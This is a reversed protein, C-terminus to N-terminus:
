VFWAANPYEPIVFINEDDYYMYVWDGVQAGRYVRYVTEIKCYTDTDEYYLIFLCQTLGIDEDLEMIKDVLLYTIGDKTNHRVSMMCVCVMYCTLWITGLVTQIKDGTAYAILFAVCCAASLYLLSVIDHYLRERKGIRIDKKSLKPKEYNPVVPVNRYDELYM